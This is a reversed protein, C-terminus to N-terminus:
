GGQGPEVPLSMEPKQLGVLPVPNITSSASLQHSLPGDGEGDPQSREGPQDDMPPDMLVDALEKQLQQESGNGVIQPDCVCDAFCSALVSELLDMNQLLADAFATHQVDSEFLHGLVFLPQLQKRRGTKWSITCFSDLVINM